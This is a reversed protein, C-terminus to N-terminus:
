ESYPLKPSRYHEEIKHPWSALMSDRLSVCSSRVHLLDTLITSGKESDEIISVAFTCQILEDPANEPAFALFPNISNHSRIWPKRSCTQRVM